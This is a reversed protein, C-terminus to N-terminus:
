NAKSLNSNALECNSKHPCIYHCYIYRICWAYKKIFERVLEQKKEHDYPTHDSLYKSIIETEFLIYPRFCSCEVM